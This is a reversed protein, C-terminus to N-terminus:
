ENNEGREPMYKELGHAAIQEVTMLRLRYVTIDGGRTEYWFKHVPPLIEIAPIEAKKEEMMSRHRR